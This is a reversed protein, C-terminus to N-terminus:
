YKRMSKKYAEYQEYISSLQEPTNVEGFWKIDNVREANFSRCEGIAIDVVALNGNHISCRKDHGNLLGGLNGHWLSSTQLNRTCLMVRATGDKKFFTVVATEMSLRLYTEGYDVM